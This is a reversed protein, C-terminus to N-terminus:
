RSWCSPLPQGVRVEDKYCSFIAIGEQRLAEEEQEGLTGEPVSLAEYCAERFVGALWYEVCHQFTLVGTSAESAARSTRSVVIPIDQPAASTIRGELAELKDRFAGAEDAIQTRLTGLEGEVRRLGSAQDTIQTEFAVERERLREELSAVRETVADVRDQDGDGGCTVAVVAVAVAALTEWRM